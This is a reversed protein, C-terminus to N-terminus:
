PSLDFRHLMGDQSVAAAGEALAALADPPIFRRDVVLVRIGLGAALARRAEPALSADFLAETRAQRAGLDTIGPEPWPVSLVRQGTAVVPWATLGYAAIAEEDPVDHTLREAAGLIDPATRDRAEFWAQFNGAFYAALAMIGATALWPVARPLVTGRLSTRRVMDLLVAALGVHLVLVAPMLFRSAIQVGALGVLYAGSYLVLALLLPRAARHRLGLLGLASPLLAEPIWPPGYFDPGGEWTSNGPRLMLDVPNFYPWALAVASGSVIAALAALRRAVPADPQALAFSVAGIGGIVAGLQHTALM